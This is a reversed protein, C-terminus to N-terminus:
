VGSLSPAGSTVMTVVVKSIGVIDADSLSVVGNRHRRQTWLCREGAREPQAGECIVLSALSVEDLYSFEDFYDEINSSKEM